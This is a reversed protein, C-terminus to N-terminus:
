VAYARDHLVDPGLEVQGHRQGSHRRDVLDGGVEQRLRAPGKDSYTHSISVLMVRVSRSCSITASSRRSGSIPDAASARSSPVVLAATLTCRDLRPLFPTM